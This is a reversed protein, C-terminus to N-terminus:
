LGIVANDMLGAWVDLLARNKNNISGYNTFMDLYFSSVDALYFLLFLSLDPNFDLNLSEVYKSILGSLIRPSRSIANTSAGGYGKAKSSKLIDILASPKFRKRLASAQILFHFIDYFPISEERAYEWDFVSLSGRDIYINFPTFDGHCIGLPISESALNKHIIELSKSLRYKWNKSIRGKLKQINNELQSLCATGGLTQLTASKGFLESLFSILNDNFNKPRYSYPKRVNSQVLITGKGWPSFHLIRPIEGSLITLGELRRLIRAEQELLKKAQDTDALKAYALIKGDSAMVQATVKRYYGPTGTSLAIEINKRGLVESLLNHLGKTDPSHPGMKKVIVLRNQLLLRGLGIRSLVSIARKRVKAYPKAPNYLKLSSYSVWRSKLPVIWRPNCFGPIIAYVQTQLTVQTIPNGPNTSNDPKTPNNPKNPQFVKLWKSSQAIIVGGPTLIRDCEKLITATLSKKNMIAIAHLSNEHFPLANIEQWKMVRVNSVQEMAIFDTIEEKYEETFYVIILQKVSRSLGGVLGWCPDGILMVASNKDLPALYKWAAIRDDIM